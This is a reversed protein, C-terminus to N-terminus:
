SRGPSSPESPDIRRAGFGVSKRTRPKAKAQPTGVAGFTYGKSASADEPVPPQVPKPDIPMLTAAERKAVEIYQNRVQKYHKQRSRQAALLEDAGSLEWIDTTENLSFHRKDNVIAMIRKHLTAPSLPKSLVSHAGVKLSTEVLKLTPAGTLIIAPVTALAGMRKTRMAKLMSVGDIPDMLWDVIILHPPDVLMSDIATQAADYTRVRAVKFSNLMSRLISQMPKSDDIAVVDLQDLSRAFAAHPQETAM